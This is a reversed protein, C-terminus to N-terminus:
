TASMSTHNIAIDVRGPLADVFDAWLWVQSHGDVPINNAAIWGNTTIETAGTRTNVTNGYLHIYSPLAQSLSVNWKEAVNGTNTFNFIPTTADQLYGPNCGYGYVCPVIDYDTKATANFEIPTTLSGLKTRSSGIPALGPLKMNFSLIPEVLLFTIDFAEYTTVTTDATIVSDGYNSFSTSSRNISGIDFNSNLRGILIKTNDENRPNSIVQMWYGTGVYSSITQTTGSCQPSCIRYSLTTGTTDNDWILIGTNGSPNWNFDAPRTTASDVGTDIRSIVAWSAGNWYVTHLNGNSMVFVAQLDDTVPDAKLTVWRVDANDGTYLDGINVTTWSVGNWYQANVNGVTGDSGIVMGKSGDAAYKVAFAEYNRSTTDVSTSIEVRNGWSNGNWIWADIDRDTYDIGAVIIEESTSVPNRDMVVWYYQIDTAHGDDNIYQEPIGSFSLANEPLVKYALDRSTDTSVIAYVVIADGTATEFEVDFRRQAAVGVYGINSSFTWSVGDNSVYADLYGDDSQTVIIRKPSKLSFALKVFRIPSGASTLEVENGWGTENNWMKYKPSNLGNVGTNSRYTIMAKELTALNYAYEVDDGFRFELTHKGEKLVENIIRGEESCTWNEYFVSKGDYVPNVINGGCRLELFKIDVGFNTNNIPTITLNAKGTTNFRVTWNGYVTPYSQVNIITISAEVDFQEESLQPVTWEIRDNLGNSDSDVFKVEYNLDNTVDIKVNNIIHYIKITYNEEFLEEPIDTYSKVNKYHDIFDSKVNIRKEYNKGLIFPKIVSEDKYPPPSEYEVFYSIEKKGTIDIKWSTKDTYIISGKDDKVIINKADKPLGTVNYGKVENSSPNSVILEKRWKVPKNIEAKEQEEKISLTEIKEPASTETTIEVSQVTFSNVETKAENGSTDNAYSYYGVVEGAILDSAPITHSFTKGTGIPIIGLRSFNRSINRSIEPSLFISLLLILIVIALFSSIIKSLHVVKILVFIVVAFIIILAIILLSSTLGTSTLSLNVIGLSCRGTTKDCVNEKWAGTSNEYIVVSDLDVNDSWEVIINVSDSEKVVSPEHRLNSWVPPEKDEIKSPITSTIPTTSSFTTEITTTILSVVSFTKWILTSNWTSNCYVNYDGYNLDSSNTINNQIGIGSSILQIDGTYNSWLYIISSSNDSLCTINIIEPQNFTTENIEIYNIEQSSVIPIISITTFIIVIAIISSIIKM